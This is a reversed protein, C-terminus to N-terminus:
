EKADPVGKVAAKVVREPHEPNALSSTEVFDVKGEIM